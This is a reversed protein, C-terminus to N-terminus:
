PSKKVKPFLILTKNGNNTLLEVKNQKIEIIKHNLYFDNKEYIKDEIVAFYKNGKKLIAQLVQKQTKNILKKESKSQNSLNKGLLDPKTPDNALTQNFFCNFMVFVLLLKFLLILKLNVM